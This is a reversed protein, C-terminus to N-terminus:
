DKQKTEEDTFTVKGSYHPGEGKLILEGSAIPKHRSEIVLRYKKNMEFDEKDLTISNFLVADGRHMFQEDTHKRDRAGNTIDYIVLDVQVDDLPKAFFAAYQITVKGTKKDYWLTGKNMSKVKSIYSGVSSWSSPIRIDTIIIRGGLARAIQAKQADGDDPRRALAPAAAGALAVALLARAISKM